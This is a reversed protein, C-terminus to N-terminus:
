GKSALSFTKHWTWSSDRDLRVDVFVRVVRTSAPVRIADNVASWSGPEVPSGIHYGTQPWRHLLRASVSNIEPELAELSVALDYDALLTKGTNVIDLRYILLNGSMDGKEPFACLVVDADIRFQDFDTRYVYYRNLAWVLAALLGLTKAIADVYKAFQDLTTWQLFLVIGSMLVILCAVAFFSGILHRTVLWQLFVFRKM